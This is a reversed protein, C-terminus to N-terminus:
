RRTAAHEARGQTGEAEPTTEAGHIAAGIAGAWTGLEATVVEVEDLSTMRVRRRM